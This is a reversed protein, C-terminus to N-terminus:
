GHSDGAQEKVGTQGKSIQQNGPESDDTNKHSSGFLDTIFTPLGRPHGTDVAVIVSMGVRLQPKNALDGLKVIMPIRQVVKVWNGTTNQAPLLSFSSGSAPSISGVTGNWEIGPYTDVTIRVPQGPRVYTLETEKPSAEIWMNETSVLSFAQQAAKLYAGVQLAPVNTVIGDFPARVVTHDLQRQAEDVGAQAQIYFPNQEVPQNPDNSLQALAAEAEAKAVNVRQQAAILDQHAKDYAARSYAPSGALDQQRKFNTQYYPIDAEAQAIEALAQTYTAKLTLIQNRVTGLQGQASELAIRFARDRLRFLVQGRKVVENDHVEISDVTGAVDTSIGVTDAQVYANDTSMVEGGTVYIYGGAVLAVPLLAFLLPRLLRRKSKPTIKNMDTTLPPLPRETM